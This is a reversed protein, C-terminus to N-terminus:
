HHFTIKITFLGTKFNKLIFNGISHAILSTKVIIKFNKLISIKLPPGFDFTGKRRDFFDFNKFFFKVPNRLISPLVSKAVGINLIGM